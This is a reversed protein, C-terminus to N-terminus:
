PGVFSQLAFRVFNNKVLEISHGINFKTFDMIAYNGYVPKCIQYEGDFELVGFNNMKLNHGLFLEGGDDENWKNPEAFYIIIVCARGPNIGDFHIESFDGSEYMSYQTALKFTDKKAMLEPYIFSTHERIAKNFFDDMSDIIPEKDSEDYSELVLRGWQQTTRIEAGGKIANKIFDQRIQKKDYWVEQEFEENTPIPGTYNPLELYSKPNNQSTYNHRYMYNTMKDSETNRFIESFYEFDSKNINTFDNFMDDIHGVYYGKEILSNHINEYM